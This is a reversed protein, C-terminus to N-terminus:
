GAVVKYVAGNLDCVYLENSADEGFSSINLSTDLLRVASVQATSTANTYWIEGTCYDGFLYLGAMGSIATGRYAHGGTIACRGALHKYEVPPLTKGTRNCNTAPSYCSRGEMVHWGYNVGRGAGATSRGARDVEEWTDQGVDGIWLTGAVRDFSFRWPNRLGYSWIEDRGTRGVFPNSSPITYGRTSTYSLPNIRLLKGLLSSLNQGNNNPDGASGGDGMGIYLYGDPGFVIDGGNHNAFPQTITLVTRRTSTDVTNPSGTSQRYEVIKTNGNVDTYDIYLKHDTTFKPSFALGLLGQESGGTVLTHIDLYPTSLLSSGSWVRIRGTKEVIFLRGTGDRASTLYVPQSLGGVLLQLQIAPASQVVPGAIAVPSPDVLDLNRSVSAAASAPAILAALLIAPALRAPLAFRARRSSIPM